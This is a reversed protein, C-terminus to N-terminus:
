PSFKQNRITLPTLYCCYQNERSVPNIGSASAAAATPNGSVEGESEVRSLVSVVSQLSEACFTLPSVHSSACWFSVSVDSFPWLYFLENDTGGMSWRHNWLCHVFAHSININHLCSSVIFGTVDLHSHTCIGTLVSNALQNQENYKKNKFSQSRLANFLYDSM